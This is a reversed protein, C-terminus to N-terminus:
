LHSQGLLGFVCNLNLSETKRREAGAIFPNGRLRESVPSRENGWSHEGGGVKSSRRLCAPTQTPFPFLPASPTVPPPPPFGDPHLDTHGHCCSPAAPATPPRPSDPVHPGFQPNSPKLPALAQKLSSSVKPDSCM